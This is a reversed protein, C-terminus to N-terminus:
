CNMTGATRGFYRLNKSTGEAVNTGGAAEKARRDRYLYLATLCAMWNDASQSPLRPASQGAM